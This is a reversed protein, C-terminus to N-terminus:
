WGPIRRKLPTPVGVVEIPQNAVPPNTENSLTEAQPVVADDAEVQQRNPFFDVRRYKNPTERPPSNSDSRRARKLLQSTSTSRFSESEVM